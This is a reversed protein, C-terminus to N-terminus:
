AFDLSPPMIKVSENQFRQESTVRNNPLCSPQLFFILGGGNANQTAAPLMISTACIEARHQEVLQNCVAICTQLIAHAVGRM